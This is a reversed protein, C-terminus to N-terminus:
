VDPQGDFRTRPWFRYGSWFCYLAVLLWLTSRLFGLDVLFVRLMSGTGGLWYLISVARVFGSRMTPIPAAPELPAQPAQYPNDDM